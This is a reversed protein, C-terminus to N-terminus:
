RLRLSLIRLIEQIGTTKGRRVSFSFILSLVDNSLKGFVSHDSSDYVQASKTHEALRPKKLHRSFSIDGGWTQAVEPQRVPEEPFTILRHTVFTQWFPIRRETGADWRRGHKTCSGALDQGTWVRGPRSFLIGRSVHGSPLGHQIRLACFGDQIYNLVQSSGASTSCALAQRSIERTLVVNRPM